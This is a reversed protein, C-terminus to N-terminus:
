LIRRRFVLSRSGSCFSVKVKRFRSLPPLTKLCWLLCAVASLFSLIVGVFLNGKECSGFLQQVVLTVPVLAKHSVDLLGDPESSSLYSVQRRDLEEKTCFIVM